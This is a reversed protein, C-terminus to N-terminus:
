AANIRCVIADVDRWRIGSGAKTMALTLDGRTKNAAKMTEAYQRILCHLAPDVDALVTSWADDLTPRARRQVVRRPKVTSSMSM